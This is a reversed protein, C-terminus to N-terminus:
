STSAKSACFSSTSRLFLSRSIRRASMSALFAMNCLSSSFSPPRRPMFTKREGCGEDGAAVSCRRWEGAGGGTVNEWSSKPECSPSLRGILVWDITFGSGDIRVTLGAESEGSIRGM